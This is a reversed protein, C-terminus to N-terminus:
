RSAKVRGVYGGVFEDRGYDREGLGVAIVAAQLADIRSKFKRKDLAPNGNGDRRIVADTIASRMLESQATVLKGGYVAAQFARVDASGDGYSAAGIGRPEYPWDIGVTDMADMASGKRVRDSGLLRVDAGQLRRLCDALFDLPPTVRVGPYVTLEGATEMKLYRTGQGDNRSRELLGPIGGVGAWVDLRGVAPWYAAMSTFSLAEGLDFGVYCPGDREPMDELHREVAFWDNVPCLMEDTPSVPYNLDYAMFLGVDSPTALVRAAEHEMYELSKITGLGPNAAYWGARDDVAVGEPAAYHHVALGPAGAEARHLM